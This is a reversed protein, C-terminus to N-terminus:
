QATEGNGLITLPAPLAIKRGVPLGYNVFAVWADAAQQADEYQMTKEVRHKANRYALFLRYRENKM